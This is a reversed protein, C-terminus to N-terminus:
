QEATDLAKGGFGQRRLGGVLCSEPLAIVVLCDAKVANAATATNNEMPAVPAERSATLAAFFAAFDPLPARRPALRAM